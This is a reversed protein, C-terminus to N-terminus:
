ETTFGLRIGTLAAMVRSVRPTQGANSWRKVLEAGRRVAASAGGCQAPLGPEQLCAWVQPFRKVLLKVLLKVLISGTGAPV